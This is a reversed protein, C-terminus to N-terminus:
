FIEIKKLFFFLLSIGDPMFYQYYLLLAPVEFIGKPKFCSLLNSRPAIKTTADRVPNVFGIEM